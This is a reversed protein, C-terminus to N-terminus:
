RDMAAEEGHDQVVLRSILDGTMGAVGPVITGEKNAPM